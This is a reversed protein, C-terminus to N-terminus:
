KQVTLVLWVPTLSGLCGWETTYLYMTYGKMCCNCPNLKNEKQQQFPFYDLMKM